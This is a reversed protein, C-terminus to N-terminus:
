CMNFKDSLFFCCMSVKNIGHQGSGGAAAEAANREDIIKLNEVFIEFREIDEVIEFERGYESKFNEWMNKQLRTNNTFFSASGSTLALALVILKM